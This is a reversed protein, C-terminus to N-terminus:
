KRRQLARHLLRAGIRSRRGSGGCRRCNGFRKGTSGHNRGTGDCSWCPGFPHWWLHWLWVALVALGIVILWGM